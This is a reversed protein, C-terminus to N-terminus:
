MTETISLSLIDNLDYTLTSGSPVIAWQLTFVYTGPVWPGLLEIEGAMNSHVGVDNHFFKQLLFQNGFGSAPNSSVWIQQETAINSFGSASWRCVIKTELFYKQFTVQTLDAYNSPTSTTTFGGSLPYPKAVTTHPVNPANWRGVILAVNAAVLVMVRSNLLLPQGTVNDPYITSLQDDMQVAVERIKSTDTDIVTGPKFVAQPYRRLFSEVTVRVLDGLMVRDVPVPSV